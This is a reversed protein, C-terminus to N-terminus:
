GFSTSPSISRISPTTSLATIPESFAYRGDNHALGASDQIFLGYDTGKLIPERAVFLGLTNDEGVVQRAVGHTLNLFVDQPLL